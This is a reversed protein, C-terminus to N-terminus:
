SITTSSSESVTSEVPTTKVSLYWKWFDGAINVATDDITSPSKRALDSVSQLLREVSEAPLSKHILISQVVNGLLAIVLLVALLLELENM